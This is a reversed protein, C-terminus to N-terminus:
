RGRSYRGRVLVAQGRGTKKLWVEEVVGPVGDLVVSAGEAVRFNHDPLAGETLTLSAAWGNGHWSQADVQLTGGDVELTAVSM